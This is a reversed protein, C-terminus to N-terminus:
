KPQGLWLFAVPVAVGIAFCLAVVWARKTSRFALIMGLIITALLAISMTVVLIKFLTTTYEGTGTESPYIQDVHISTLKSVWTDQEGLVKNREGSVTQYWGTAIFFILLPAFFVSLYLHLKRILRM